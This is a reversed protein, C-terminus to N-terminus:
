VEDCLLIKSEIIAERGSTLPEDATICAFSLRPDEGEDGGIISRLQESHYLKWCGDDEKYDKVIFIIPKFSEEKIAAAKLEELEELWGAKNCFNTYGNLLDNRCNTEWTNQSSRYNFYCGTWMLTREDPLNEFISENASKMNERIIKDFSVEEDTSNLYVAGIHEDLQQLAEEASMIPTVAKKIRDCVDQM